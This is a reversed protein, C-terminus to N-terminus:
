FLVIQAASENPLVLRAHLKQNACAVVGVVHIAVRPLNQFVLPSNNDKLQNAKRAYVSFESMGARFCFHVGGRSRTGERLIRGRLASEPLATKRCDFFGRNRMCFFILRSKERRKGLPPMGAQM